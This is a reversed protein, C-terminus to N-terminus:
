RSDDDSDDDGDDDGYDDSDDDARPMCRRRRRAPPFYDIKLRAWEALEDREDYVINFATDGHLFHTVITDTMGEDTTASDLRYAYRSPKTSVGRRTGDRRGSGSRSVAAGFLPNEDRSFQFGCIEECGPCTVHCWKYGKFWSYDSHSIREICVDTTYDLFSREHFDEFGAWM